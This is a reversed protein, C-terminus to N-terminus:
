VATEVCATTDCAKIRLAGSDSSTQRNLKIFKTDPEAFRKTNWLHLCREERLM